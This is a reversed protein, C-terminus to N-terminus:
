EAGSRTKAFVGIMLLIGLVVMIQAYNNFIMPLIVFDDAYVDIGDTTAFDEYANSLAAGATVIIGMTVIAGIFFFPHTNLMSAAVFSSVGLAIIAVLFFKDAFSLFSTSLNASVEKPLADFDDSAQIEANIDSSIVHAVVAIIALAFLLIGVIAADVVSGKNNM